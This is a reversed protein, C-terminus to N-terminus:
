KGGKRWRSPPPYTSPDQTGPLAMQRRANRRQIAQRLTKDRDPCTCIKGGQGDPALCRGCRSCGELGHADVHLTGM